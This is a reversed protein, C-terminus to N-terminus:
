LVGTTLDNTGSPPKPSAPPAPAAPPKAAPLRASFVIIQGPKTLVIEPHDHYNLIKGTIAVSRGKLARVNTFQNTDQSHIIAVFPSDPYPKDLNIFVIAPRQSVQAVVGTVTMLQDYHSSAEWAAIKAPPLLTDALALRTLALLLGAVLLSLKM